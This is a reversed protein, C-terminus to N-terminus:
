DWVLRLAMAGKGCGSSLIRSGLGELPQPKGRTSEGESICLQCDSQAGRSREGGSPAPPLTLATPTLPQPPSTIGGTCGNQLREWARACCPPSSWSPSSIGTSATCSVDTHRELGRQGTGVWYGRPQHLIRQGWSPAREAGVWPGGRRWTNGVPTSPHNFAKGGLPRHEESLGQPDLLNLSGGQAPKQEQPVWVLCARVPLVWNVTVQLNVPIM